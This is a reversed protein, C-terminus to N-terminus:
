AGPAALSCCPPCTAVVVDVAAEDLICRGRLLCTCWDSMMSDIAVPQVHRPAFPQQKSREQMQCPLLLLTLFVDM